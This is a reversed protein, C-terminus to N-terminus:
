ALSPPRADCRAVSKTRRLSHRLFAPGDSADAMSCPLGAAPLRAAAATVLASMLGVVTM